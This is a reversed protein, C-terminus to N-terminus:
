YLLLIHVIHFIYQSLTYKSPTKDLIRQFRAREYEIGERCLVARLSFITANIMDVKMLDLVRFIERNHLYLIYSYFYVRFHKLSNNSSM